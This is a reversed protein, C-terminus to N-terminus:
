RLALAAQVLALHSFAQPFNGAMRGHRADYEESLLGVDNALGCLRDMLEMAQDRRGAKALASVLWFSCALFPHEDGAIGDVGTETRYRLLLGGDDLDTIVAPDDDTGPPRWEPAGALERLEAIGEAPGRLILVDDHLLMEDGDPDFLWDNGRRIAVVRMGVEIPLRVDALSRQALASDPRVRVRHSIEEAAALDAVLAPPIGLRHTVIHAIDVGANGMREIASLVSKRAGHRREFDRVKRLQAPTLDTLRKTIQAATLDDYGLIPFAGVGVRRRARDVRVTGAPGHPVTQALRLGPQGAYAHPREDGAAVRVGPVRLVQLDGGIEDEEAEGEVVGM